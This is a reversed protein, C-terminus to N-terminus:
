ARADQESVNEKEAVVAIPLLAVVMAAVVVAICRVAMKLNVYQTHKMGNAM